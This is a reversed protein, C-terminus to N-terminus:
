FSTRLSVLYNKFSGMYLKVLSRKAPIKLVYKICSIDTPTCYKKLHEKNGRVQAQQYKNKYKAPVFYYDAAQNDGTHFVILGSLVIGDALIFSCDTNLHPNLELANM